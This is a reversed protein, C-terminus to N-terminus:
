SALEGDSDGYNSNENEDEYEIIYDAVNEELTEGRERCTIVLVNTMGELREPVGYDFDLHGSGCIGFVRSGASLRKVIQAFFSDKLVQCPFIRRFRDTVTDFDGSILGQFYRYHDEHGEKYFSTSMSTNSEIESLVQSSQDGDVMRRCMERPPFGGYVKANHLKAITLLQGYHGLIDFGESSKQYESTLQMLDLKGERFSDLIPQQHFNFMEMVVSIPLASNDMMYSLIEKQASLVQKQGHQEGFM